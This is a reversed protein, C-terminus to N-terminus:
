TRRATSWNTCCTSATASSALSCPGGTSCCQRWYGTRAFWPAGVLAALLISEVMSFSGVMGLGLVAGLLIAQMWRRGLALWVWRFGTSSHLAFALLCGSVIAIPVNDFIIAALSAHPDLQPLTLHWVILLPLM